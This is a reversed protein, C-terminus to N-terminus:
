EESRATGGAQSATDLMSVEEWVGLHPRDDAGMLRELDLHEFYREPRVYLTTEM